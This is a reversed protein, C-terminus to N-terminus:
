KDINIKNQLKTIKYYFFYTKYYHVAAVHHKGCGVGKVCDGSVVM